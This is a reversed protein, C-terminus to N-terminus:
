KDKNQKSVPNRKTARAPRLSGSIRRDGGLRLEPM